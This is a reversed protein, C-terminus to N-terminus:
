VGQTKPVDINISTAIERLIEPSEEFFNDNFLIVDLDTRLYKSWKTTLTDIEENTFRQKVPREESGGIRIRPAYAIAYSLEGREMGRGDDNKAFYMQGILSRHVCIPQNKFYLIDGIRELKKGRRVLVPEGTM